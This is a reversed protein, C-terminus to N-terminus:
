SEPMCVFREAEADWGYDGELGALRMMVGVCAHYREQDGGDFRCHNKATALEVGCPKVEAVEYMSTSRACHGSPGYGEQAAAAGVLGCAALTGALLMRTTMM